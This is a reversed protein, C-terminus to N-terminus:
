NTQAAAPLRIARNIVIPTDPVAPMGAKIGTDSLEIEEVVDWGATVKGFVAYGPAGRKGDLHPNRRVNIFFQAGASDPDTLRAMALYGKRNLLGNASENVITGPENRYNMDSDYGGAQIMFNAIVRHFILGNYFDDDVLGLFNEVTVPAFEPYLEIDITGLSTELRVQPNAAQAEEAFTWGPLYAIVLLTYLLKTRINM